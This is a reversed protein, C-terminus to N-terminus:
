TIRRGLRPYFEQYIVGKCVPCLDRTDEDRAFGTIAIADDGARIDCNSIRINRSTTCHIGDSNPIMVNNYISIGEVKADDCYALRIAWSPTDILKFGELKVRNCHYFVITMGPKPLRKIPGDSFFTGDKMYEEKQRTLQKDFEQYVHNQTSDYFAIGKAQISGLGTISVDEANECFFMGYKQNNVTYDELNTSAELEAGQTLHFNVRSKLIITGTIFKGSPVVVKGGGSLHCKDVAAQIAATSIKNPSAGFDLINFSQAYNNGTFLILLLFVLVPLRFRYLYHSYKM